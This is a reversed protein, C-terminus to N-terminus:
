KMFKTKQTTRQLDNIQRKKKYWDYQIDTKTKRMQNRM